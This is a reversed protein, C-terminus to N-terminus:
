QIVEDARLLLSQPIPLTLPSPTVILGRNPERAFATLVREIDATDRVAATTVTMGLSAAAAKVAPLFTVNAAIEPVHVVAARHVGPAIQKLVELWKGGIAPNL